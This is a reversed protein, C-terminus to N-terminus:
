PRALRYFAAGAVFDYVAYEDGEPGTEVAPILGSDVFPGPLTLATELRWQGAAVPWSIRVEGTQRLYQIKLRVELAGPPAVRVDDVLVTADGQGANAFAITANPAQATFSVTARYFPAEGVPAVETEWVPSGDVAVRLRPVGGCCNRANYVFSVQYVAGPQLGGVTQSVSSGAGQLFLVSRQDSTIGNDTFPGEGTRNVGYAGTGTWGSLPQPAIYGPWPPWGSAEFSPNLVIVENTTRPVITVADLLLTADVSATTLFELLGYEATATFPLSASYYPNSGGVPTVTPWAALTQGNVRVTLSIPGGDQLRENYRFQLWYSQGPRLGWLVQYLGGSGQVFGVRGRDPILGNDHFPGGAQNVGPNCGPISRWQDIASYHPWTLNYNNEFSPNAVLTEGVVMTVNTGVCAEPPGSLSLTATGPRQAAVAFSRTIPGGAPFVLTLRGGTAGVPAAVAPNDSTVTVAVDQQANLGAPICVVVTQNTQGVYSRLGAPAPWLCQAPAAGGRWDIRLGIPNPGTLGNHVLVALTNLGAVFGRNITFDVLGGFGSNNVLDLSVGNLVVDLVRDDAAWKGRIVATNPDLGTLDFLTAFVYIGPANGAGQNPQPAIWRSTPGEAVWPGAPAVPWADNLTSVSLGPATPDPSIVLFWHPDPTSPGLLAGADDVGTSFLGPIPLLVTLRAPASTAAGYPSNVVALYLGAQNTTVASLTLVANTANLIPNGNFQWQYRLPPTGDAVVTLSVPEGAIVTQDLPQAVIYPPVNTELAPLAGGRLNQVRLGTYGASANNVRFDLTNTGSVFGTSIIFANLSGFNGPCTVGTPAGNLSISGANDSTWDGSVFATTPDLGTLDLVLRYVYDGGAAASTQGRPGIWKSNPTNAIWPGAVIPFVTSDHVIANASPSDPNVVLKYHPDVAYDPLAAGSDDVGTNFLGGLPTLVTLRAPPSTTLGNFNEVVVDYRGAQNTTVARLTLSPGNEGPLDIGEFRWQYFLPSEGIAVVTFTATEGAVLRQDAPPLLISPPEGEVEVTGLMEVRLGTPNPTDPANSVIFDLTNLGAVFGRHITFESWSTFGTTNAIGLSVGNLVVDVGGNDVAWRGQILAKAPDYGTLNFTIRYTYSGQANGIHQEPRPAIWRSYPGEALWPPVPFGPNLTYVNPGPYAPDASSVLRYHPDVAGAPLLRGLDDVGTPYLGPILAAMVAARGLLVLGLTSLVLLRVLPLAQRSNM